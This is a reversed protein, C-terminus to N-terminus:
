CGMPDTAPQAVTPKCPWSVSKGKNQSMGGPSDPKRLSSKQEQRSSCHFREARREYKVLFIFSLIPNLPRMSVIGDFAELSFIM